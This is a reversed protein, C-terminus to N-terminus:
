ASPASNMPWMLVYVTSSCSIMGPQSTRTVPVEELAPSPPPGFATPPEVPLDAPRAGKLIKDVILAGRRFLTVFDTGYSM